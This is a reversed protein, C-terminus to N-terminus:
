THLLSKLSRLSDVFKRAKVTGAETSAPIPGIQALLNVAHSALQVHGPGALVRAETPGHPTAAAPGTTDRFGLGLGPGHAIGM